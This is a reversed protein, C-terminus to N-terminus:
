SRQGSGGTDAAPSRRAVLVRIHGEGDAIQRVEGYQPMRQLRQVVSKAQGLGIEFALFGGARLLRPADRILRQVVTIGLPGGDFALHPEFSGIEHPLSRVKGASIYPPNCIVIDTRDHFDANDCPALLDGSVTEVRTDLGHLAINRAALTVADSSLDTAWVHVSRTNVALAVAINGSGTCTDIARIDRGGDGLEQALAIATRALLETEERPILAAPGALLQLGMFNQHGTIYALPEGALRRRLLEEFRARQAADLPPCDVAAAASASMANGLALQWLAAVTNRASEGPKDPLVPMRAVLTPWVQEFSLM